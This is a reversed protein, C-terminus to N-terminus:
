QTGSFTCLHACIRMCIPCGHGHGRGLALWRRPRRRCLYSRRRCRAERSKRRHLKTAKIVSVPSIEVTSEIGTGGDVSILTRKYDM